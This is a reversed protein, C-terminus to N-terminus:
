DFYAARVAARRSAQTQIPQVASVVSAGFRPLLEQKTFANSNQFMMFIFPTPPDNCFSVFPIM